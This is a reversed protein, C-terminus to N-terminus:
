ALNVALNTDGRLTCHLLLYKNGEDLNTARVVRFYVSPSADKSPYEIWKESTFNPKYRIYIKHTIVTEINTNDFITVGSVPEILAYVNTPITLSETFDATDTGISKIDRDYIIIKHRMAGICVRNIKRRIKKCVGM